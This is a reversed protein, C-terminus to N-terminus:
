QGGGLFASVVHTAFAMWQIDTLYELVLLACAALIAITAFVFRPQKYLPLEVETV